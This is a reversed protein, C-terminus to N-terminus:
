MIRCDFMIQFFLWRYHDIDDSFDVFDFPIKLESLVRYVGENALNINMTTASFGRDNELVRTGADAAVRTLKRSGICYPEKEQIKAMVEGIRNYVTQDLEGNPHLHDGVCIGTGYALARFAEFELAAKNRM